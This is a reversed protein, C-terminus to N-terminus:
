ESYRVVDLWHRGWKEGYHPSALLREVLREYADPSTDQIFANVEAPTLPLGTLDFKVRRALTARDAEAAPSLEEKDLQALIFADIPNRIAFKPNQVTPVAPRTPPRLSWHTVPEAAFVIAATFLVALFAITRM